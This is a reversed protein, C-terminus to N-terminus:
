VARQAPHAAARTTESGSPPVPALAGALMWLPIGILPRMRSLAGFNTVVYGLLVAVTASFVLGFVVLPLRDGVLHRRRWLMALLAVGAADFMVVDLDTLWLMGRGGTIEISLFEKVAAFPVFTIALGMATVKLHEGITIPIARYARLDGDQESLSGPPPAAAAPGPTDGGRAPDARRGDDDAPVGALSRSSSPLAPWAPAPVVPTAGSATRPASRLAASAGSARPAVRLAASHTRGIFPDERLPVAINTDGSTTLFGTRSSQVFSAFADPLRTIQGVTRVHPAVFGYYPGAGIWFGGWALVLVATARAAYLPFPVRRERVAFILLVFALTSWLLLAYYWRTGALAAITVALVVTGGALIWHGGRSSPRRILQIVTLTTLCGVAVLVNTLEEKLPQTSHLFVVPSLSYAALAVLCPLDRRWENVPAFYRILAIAFVLYLCLNLFMGAAPSIGVLRMWVALTNVFVPSPVEQVVPDRAWTGAEAAAAALDYYGIADLAPMWFGGGGQLSEAAPLRAYSIWFLAVGVGIRALITLAVIAGAAHSQRRIWRYGALVLWGVVLAAMTHGIQTQLAAM